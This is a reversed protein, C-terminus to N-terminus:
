CVANSGKYDTRSVHNSMIKVMFLKQNLASDCFHNKWKQDNDIMM